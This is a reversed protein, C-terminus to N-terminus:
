PLLASVSRYACGIRSGHLACCREASRRDLRLLIRYRCSARDSPSTVQIRPDTLGNGIAMGAFQAFKGHISNHTLMFYALAPVYKGAYSEGM